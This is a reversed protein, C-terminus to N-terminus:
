PQQGCSGPRFREVTPMPRARAKTEADVFLLADAIDRRGRGPEQQPLHEWGLLNLIPFIFETETEAEVPHPMEELHAWHERIEEAFAAVEAAALRRYQDMERIGDDLFYRTFLEGRIM